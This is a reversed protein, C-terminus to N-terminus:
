IEVIKTRTQGSIAFRKGDLSQSVDLGFYTGKEGYIPNRPHVYKKGISNFKLPKVFSQAPCGILIYTANESISACTCSEGYFDRWMITLKNTEFVKMEHSTDVVVMVGNASTSFYSVNEVIKTIEWKSNFLDFITLQQIAKSFITLRTGANNISNKIGFLGNKKTGYLTGGIQSILNFTM